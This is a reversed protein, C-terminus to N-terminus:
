LPVDSPHRITAEGILFEVKDSQSSSNINQPMAPPAPFERIRGAAIEVTNIRYHILHWEVISSPRLSTVDRPKLIEFAVPVNSCVLEPAPLETVPFGSNSSIELLTVLLLASPIQYSVWM